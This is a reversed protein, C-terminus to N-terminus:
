RLILVPTGISIRAALFDIDADALSICGYTWDLFPSEGRWREGEGHFGLRGGLDTDQPALQDRDLAARIREYTKRSIRGEELAALADERSPYDIPIFLHFRSREARGAIRYTGEPTRQDGARLKTGLPERGLGIRLSVRAGGDCHAILTREGKRVVIREIRLCNRPEVALEAPAEPAARPLPPPIEPAVRCASGLALLLM